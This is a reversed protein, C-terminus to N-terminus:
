RKPMDSLQFVDNLAGRVKLACYTEYQTRFNLATLSATRKPEKDILIGTHTHTHIYIYIYIYVCVCVCIYIYINTHTHLENNIYLTFFLLGTAPM